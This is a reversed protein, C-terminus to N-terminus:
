FLIKTINNFKLKSRKYIEKFPSVNYIIYGTETGLCLCSYEQNFNTYLVLESFKTQNPSRPKM